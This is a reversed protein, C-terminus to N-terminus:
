SRTAYLRLNSLRSVVVQFRCVRKLVPRDWPNNSVVRPLPLLIKFPVPALLSRTAGVKLTSVNLDSIIELLVRCFLNLGVMSVMQPAPTRLRAM